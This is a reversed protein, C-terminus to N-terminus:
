TEFRPRSPFVPTALLRAPPSTAPRKVGLAVSGTGGISMACFCGFLALGPFGTGIFKSETAGHILAMVVVSAAFLYQTERTSAYRSLSSWLVGLMLAVFLTLGVVGLNLMLDVYISHAQPIHWFLEASVDEINRANWFAGYGVGVLPREAVEEMLLSWLPIRGTLTGIHEGRGLSAAGLLGDGGVCAIVLALLGSATVAGSILLVKTSAKARVLLGLTSAILAGGLGTRSKTLLLLGVAAVVSLSLLRSWRHPMVLFLLAVCIFACALASENPHLVGAFRYDGQWPRFVNLRVEALVGLTCVAGSTMAIAVGFGQLGLWRVAGLAATTFLTLVVLKRVAILPDATWFLSAYCLSLFGVFLALNVPYIEVPKRRSAFIAVAGAAGLLLYGLVSTSTVQKQQDALKNEAMHFQGATVDATSLASDHDFSILAFGATLVVAALVCHSLPTAPEVQTPRSTSANPRSSM